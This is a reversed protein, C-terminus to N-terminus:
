PIVFSASPASGTRSICCTVPSDVSIASSQESATVGNRWTLPTASSTRRRRGMPSKAKYSAEQSAMASVEEFPLKKELLALKVMNYYNSVAFGYLKIM